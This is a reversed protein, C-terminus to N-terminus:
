LGVSNNILTIERMKKEPDIIVSCGKLNTGSPASITVESTKPLLDAPAKLGPVAASAIVRGNADRLAVTSAPADVSGLSHVIVKVTNGQVTVDDKGIGLDPRSWYPTDKKVLKLSLITTARPALTLELDGSRELDANWTINGKDAIEDNNTDIGQVIEWKGSDIDWGTMVAQVPVSDLNYAIIKMGSPTANNVLIAASEDTAPAKFKWSVTHGPYIANRMIAIGGLRARQLEGHNVSVRDSWLSGETNIYERTADAEIQNAYLEELYQKNGTMQWSIHRWLDGGSRPDTTSAIQKGWTERVGLIDLANADITGLSGPGMDMLPALYKKDGTWRYAGWFLYAVTGLGSPSGKDTSFVFSTDITYNGNADKKRHALFGDAVELLLKKAAPNGNFEVLCYAPHLVLTSYPQAGDWVSEESMKTGSYYTSRIHRHGAKNVGTVRELAKATAMLREVEKPNAYDLLMVQPLVQIGEEYTHLEDTQITSLGNTFMGNNYFAEMERLVSDKIKEPECGMLATGPWWNTLDGDDSLGGGFEGNAPGGTLQRNDIWWTVFRKVYRLDEVQRFAWLPIGLPPKPQVFLPRPQEKNNDYWYTVGPYHDPNVRLLDTMDTEFRKYINLRRSNPYEEVLQAYNDRVQTFRDLEHEPRAEARPKFILRLRAGELAAPGFDAGAGAITLYLSKDNPLIRDRTDLFLTKAEGPKVSFTFDFLMRYPWIPDMVRINLPFYEGHTPKVNLAPIDIAIGDLGANMNEWTYSYRTYEKTNLGGRFECPVLIHVIPLANVAPASKKPTQPAGGPLAVMVSRKDPAYRGDIFRLLEALNHNDPAAKGTITYSLQALGQPEIAPTVYYASLEGIPTEQEVNDFRIKQGKVPAALRNFTKEQDKPRQFLPTVTDANKEMDYALLSMTGWAAGSIELHNWPEDPMMFTVSKGSTSYCDWDPLQFYDNRGIIRSRNYVSPWTTERIGDTGKWWWRKLDYVNDIEVKRITAAAGEIAPPIDGPRNWGYRLWWENRWQANNLDRSLAPIDSPQQNKALSAINSDSLMRDYIRVEDIDGGRIFNYASQVQYPSIIRSHPGFQDLGTYFVATTDKHAAPAGNIYLRVGKTEDWSFAIHMWEDPKPFSPMDFSVRARGLNADTVFADIGHGNYDIRLWVMDWSTHDAYGVRFIPFETKGVPDRSRWFFSLTGREAYINGPAWWSLIQGHECQLGPGKAGNPIPTIGNMFNPEPDGGSAFDATAGKDGSLYFLLGPETQADAYVPSRYETFVLIGMLLLVIAITRELGRSGIRVPM